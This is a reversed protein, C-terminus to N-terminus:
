VRRKLLLFVVADIAYEISCCPLGYVGLQKSLLSFRGCHRTIVAIAESGQIILWQNPLALFLGGDTPMKLGWVIKAIRLDLEPLNPNM